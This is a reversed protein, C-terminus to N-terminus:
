RFSSSTIGPGSVSGATSAPNSAKPSRTSPLPTTRQLSVGFKMPLRMPDYPSETTSCVMFSMSRVKSSTSASVPAAMPRAREAVKRVQSM